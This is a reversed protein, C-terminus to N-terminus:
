QRFRIFYKALTEYFVGGLCLSQSEESQHFFLSKVFCHRFSTIIYTKDLKVYTISTTVREVNKDLIKEKLEQNEILHPSVPHQFDQEYRILFMQKM